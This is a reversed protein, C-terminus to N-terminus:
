TTLVEGRLSRKVKIARLKIIKTSPVIGHSTKNAYTRPFRTPHQHISAHTFISCKLLNKSVYCECIFHVTTSLHFNQLRENVYWHFNLRCDSTHVYSLSTVLVILPADKGKKWHPSHLVFIGWSIAHSAHSAFIQLPIFRYLFTWEEKVCLIPLIVTRM